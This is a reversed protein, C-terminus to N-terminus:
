LDKQTVHLTPDVVECYIEISLPRIDRFEDRAKRCPLSIGILMSGLM